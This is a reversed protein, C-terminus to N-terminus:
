RLLELLRESAGQEKALDYATKGDIDKADLPFDFERALTETLSWNGMLVACHLANRDAGNVTYCDRYEALILFVETIGQAAMEDYPYEGTVSDPEARFNLPARFAADTILSGYADDKLVAGHAILLRIIDADSPSYAKRIVCFVPETQIGGDAPRVSAGADLLTRVVDLNGHSCATQLPTEPTTELMIHLPSPHASLTDMSYGKEKGEAILTVATETDNEKIAECLQGSWRYPALSIFSLIVIGVLGVIVFFLIRQVNSRKDM